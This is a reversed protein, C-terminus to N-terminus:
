TYEISDIDLNPRWASRAPTLKVSGKGLQYLTVV